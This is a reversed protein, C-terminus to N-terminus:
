REFGKCGAWIKEDENEDEFEEIEIVLVLVLVVVPVIRTTADGCGPREIVIEIKSQIELGHFSFPPGVPLAFILPPVSRM